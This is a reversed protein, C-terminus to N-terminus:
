GSAKKKKKKKVSIREESVTSTNVTLPLTREPFLVHFFHWINNATLSYQILPLFGQFNLAKKHFWVGQVDVGRLRQKGQLTRGQKILSAKGGTPYQHILSFDLGNWALWCVIWYCQGSDWAAENESSNNLLAQVSLSRPLTLLNCLQIWSSM